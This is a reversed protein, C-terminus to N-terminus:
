EGGAGGRRANDYSDWYNKWQDSGPTGPSQQSSGGVAKALSDDDLPRSEEVSEKKRPSKDTKSM